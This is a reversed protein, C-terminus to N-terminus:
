YEKQAKEFYFIEADLNKNLWDKAYDSNWM